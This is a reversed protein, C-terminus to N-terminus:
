AWSEWTRSSSAPHTHPPILNTNAHFSARRSAQREALELEATEMEQQARGFTDSSEGGVFAAVGVDQLEGLRIGQASLTQQLEGWQANLAHFNGHELQARIEVQGDRGVLQLQLATDSDPRLVVTMAETKSQRFELAHGPIAARLEQIAEIGSAAAGPRAEAAPTARDSVAGPALLSIVGAIETSASAQGSPIRDEAPPADTPKVATRPLETGSGLNAQRSPLEQGALPRNRGSEPANNMWPFSEARSMGAPATPSQTESTQAVERVSRSLTNLKAQPKLWVGPPPPRKAAAEMSAESIVATTAQDRPSQSELPPRSAPTEDPVPTQTPPEILPASVRSSDKPGDFAAQEPLSPSERPLRMALAGEPTPTLAPTTPATEIRPEPAQLSNKPRDFVPLPPPSVATPAAPRATSGPAVKTGAPDPKVPLPPPLPSACLPDRPTTEDCGAAELASYASPSDPSSIAKSFELPPRETRVTMSSLGIMEALSITSVNFEIPAPDFWLADTRARIEDAQGPAAKTQTSGIPALEDPTPKQSSNTTKLALLAGLKEAGRRSPPPTSSFTALDPDPASPTPSKSCSGPIADPLKAAHKGSARESLAIQMKDAFSAAGADTSETSDPSPLASPLALDDALPGPLLGGLLPSLTNRM